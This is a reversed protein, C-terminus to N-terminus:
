DQLHRSREEIARVDEDTPAVAGYYARDVDDVLDDLEGRAREVHRGIERHTSAEIRDRDAGRRSAVECLARTAADRTEVMVVTAVEHARLPVSLEFVHRVFGEAVIAARHEGLPLDGTAVIGRADSTAVDVDDLLLRAGAIPLGDRSSEVRLRLSRTPREFFARLPRRPRKESPAELRKKRAFAVIAVFALPFVVFPWKPFPARVTLTFPASEAAEAGQDSGAFRVVGEIVPVDVDELMLELRFRGREDTIARAVPAGRLSLVVTQEALPGRITTLGGRVVLAQGPRVRRPPADLELSSGLTRVVHLSVEAARHTESAGSEFILRGPGPSGLDNPAIGLNARGLADTRAEALVRGTEDKVHVHLGHAGASSRAHVRIIQTGSDIPLTGPSELTPVLDVRARADTSAIERACGDLYDTGRFEARISRGRWADELPLTAGGRADTRVSTPAEGEVTVRVEAEPVPAHLDDRLELRLSTGEPTEVIDLILRTESRIELTPDARVVQTVMWFAFISFLATAARRGKRRYDHSWTREHGSAFRTPALGSTFPNRLMKACLRLALHDSQTTAIKAM